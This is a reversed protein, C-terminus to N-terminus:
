PAGAAPARAPRAHRPQRLVRGPLAGPVDVDARPGGVLRRGGPARDRARRVRRLRRADGAVRAAHAGRALRAARPRPAPLAARRRDDAPLRRSCTRASPTSGTRRPARTSSTATPSASPCTPRSRRSASSPWCRRSARTTATTSSSSARTSASRGPARTEVTVTNTHGGAYAGAEFVTVDHEPHLLHAAVLGSVGGGVVAIRMPGTIQRIAPWRVGMRIHGASRIVHARLGATVAAAVVVCGIISGTRWRGARRRPRGRDPRRGRAGQRRGADPHRRARGAAGPRAPERRRPVAAPLERGGLM